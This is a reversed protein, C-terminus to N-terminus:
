KRCVDVLRQVSRQIGWHQSLARLTESDIPLQPLQGTSAAPTMSVPVDAVLGVAVSARTVYEHAEALRRRHTTSMGPDDGKAAELVGALSGYRNLLSAATKEGIGAVGPLGDSPDGRLTAMDAYASAAIGYRLRIAAEDMIELRGGSVPRLVRVQHEDDVLQFLDRDGTVVDVPGPAAATLTAIVDDAEYGAAGGTAIGIAALVELIAPIQAALDPPTQEDTASDDALRHSKYSPVAAVRFAPRWDLDLCSVLRDPRQDTVLRTVTDLFGRLAGSPTGDPAKVSSPVGHFARYYLFATDLLMLREDSTTM